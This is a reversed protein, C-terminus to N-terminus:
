RTIRQAIGGAAVTVTIWGLLAWLALLVDYIAGAPTARGPVWFASHHLDLIPVAADVGFLLPDFCPYSDTCETAVAASAPDAPVLAGNAQAWFASIVSLAIVAVALWAVGGLRYGYGTLAYWVRRSLRRGRSATADIEKAYLQLLVRRAAFESGGERYHLALKQYADPAFPRQRAVWELREDVSDADWGGRAFQDIRCGQLVLNGVKPWSERDDDLEHVHASDLDLAPPEEIDRWWLTGGITMGSGDVRCGPPFRTKRLDVDQGVRAARASLATRDLGVTWHCRRFSLFAGIRANNLGVCGEFDSDKFDARGEVSLAEGDIARESASQVTLLRALLQGVEAGSLDIGIGAATVELADLEVREKVVASRILISGSISSRRQEERPIASEFLSPNNLERKPDDAPTGRLKLHDCRVDNLILGQGDRPERVRLGEFVLNGDITSGALDISGAADVGRALFTSAFSARQFVIAREGPFNIQLETLNAQGGCRFGIGRLQGELRAGRLVLGGAAMSRTLQMALVIADGNILVHKSGEIVCEALELRGGLTARQLDIPGKFRCPHKSAAAFSGSVTVNVARVSPGDGNGIISDELVVNGDIRSDQLDIGGVECNAFRITRLSASRALVRGTIVCNVFELTGLINAEDLLVDGVVRRNEVRFVSTSRGGHMSVILSSLEAGGQDLSQAGPARLRSGTRAGETFMAVWGSPDGDPYSWKKMRHPLDNGISHVPWLDVDGAIEANRLLPLRQLPQKVSMLLDYDTPNVAFHAALELYGSLYSIDKLHAGPASLDRIGRKARIAIEVASTPDTRDLLRAVVDAFGANLSWHAALVRLAYKRMEGSHLRGGRAENLVALGEETPESTGLPRALLQLRQRGANVSRLIHTGIEHVILRHIDPSTFKASASVKLTRTQHNVAVRSHMDEQVVVRWDDLGNQYIVRQFESAAEDAGCTEEVVAPAESTELILRAISLLSPTPEGFRSLTLTTIVDADHSRLADLTLLYSRVEDEVLADWETGGKATARLLESSEAILANPLEEARKYEFRPILTQGRGAAEILRAREEALNTPTSEASTSRQLQLRRLQDGLSNLRVIDASDM